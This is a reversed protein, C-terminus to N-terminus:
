NSSAFLVLDSNISIITYSNRVRPQRTAPRRTPMSKISRSDDDGDDHDLQSYRSVRPRVQTKRASYSKQYRYILCM